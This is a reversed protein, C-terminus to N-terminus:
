KACFAVGEGIWGAARMANYTAGDVTFRYRLDVIGGPFNGELHVRAVYEGEGAAEVGVLDTTYEYVSAVNERWARIRKRAAGPRARM